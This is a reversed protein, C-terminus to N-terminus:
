WIWSNVFRELHFGVSPLLIFDIFWIWITVTIVIEWMFHPICHKQHFLTFSMLGFSHKNARRQSGMPYHPSHHPYTHEHSILRIPLSSRLYQCFCKDPYESLTSQWSPVRDCECFRWLSKSRSNVHRVSVAGSFDTEEVLVLKGSQCWSITFVFTSWVATSMPDTTSCVTWDKVCKKQTHTHNSECWAVLGM